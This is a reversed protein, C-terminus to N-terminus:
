SWNILGLGRESCVKFFKRLEVIEQETVRDWAYDQPDCAQVAECMERVTEPPIWEQHLGQGTIELIVTSYIKGRFSGDNGSGSFIGGCYEINAESFAQLDEENLEIDEPSRSAFTDLGM